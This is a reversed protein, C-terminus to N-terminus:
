SVVNRSPAWASSTLKEASSLTTDRLLQIIESNLKDFPSPGPRIGFVDFEEPHDLRYGKLCAVM